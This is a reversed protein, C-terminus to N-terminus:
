TILAVIEELTWVRDAIGAEMAPTARLTQHVRCFNYHMFHIALMHCPNEIQKSSANTLRSFRCNSMHVTLNQREIHSTSVLGRVSNSVIRTKAWWWIMLADRREARGFPVARRGPASCDM